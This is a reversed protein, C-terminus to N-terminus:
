LSTGLMELRCHIEREREREKETHTHTHTHTRTRTHTFSLSDSRGSAIHHILRTEGTYNQGQRNAPRQRILFRDIRSGCSIVISRRTQRERMDISYDVWLASKRWRPEVDSIKTTRSERGRQPCDRPGRGRM